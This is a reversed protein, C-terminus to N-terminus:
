YGWYYNYHYKIIVYVNVKNSSKTNLLQYLELKRHTDLANLILHTIIDDVRQDYVSLPPSQRCTTGDNPSQPHTTDYFLTDTHKAVGPESPKTHTYTHKHTYTHTHTHTRTSWRLHTHLASSGTLEVAPERAAQRQSFCHSM